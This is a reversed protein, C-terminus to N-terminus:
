LNLVMDIHPIKGNSVNSNIRFGLTQYYKELSKQAHISIKKNKLNLKSLEISKEILVKGYDNGRFDKRILIRGTSVEFKSKQYLRCYGIIENKIKIFIHKAFFDKEDFENYICDQEVVFIDYRLKMIQYLEELELKNFDKIVIEM